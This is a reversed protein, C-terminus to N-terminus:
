GRQLRHVSVERHGIDVLADELGGRIARRSGIQGGDVAGDGCQHILAYQVCQGDLAAVFGGGLVALRDVGLLALAPDCLALGAQSGLHSLRFDVALGGGHQIVKLRYQRPEPCLDLVAGWGV